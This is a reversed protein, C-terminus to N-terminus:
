PINGPIFELILNRPPADGINKGFHIVPPDFEITAPGQTEFVEDARDPWQRLRTVGLVPAVRAAYSRRARIDGPELREEFSSTM